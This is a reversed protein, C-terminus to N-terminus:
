VSMIRDFRRNVHLVIGLGSSALGHFWDPQFGNREIKSLRGPFFCFQNLLICRWEYCFIFKCWVTWDSAGSIYETNRIFDLLTTYGSAGHISAKGVNVGFIVWEHTFIGYMSQRPYNMGQGDLRNVCFCCCAVQSRMLRESVRQYNLMAISFPWKHHIKGNFISSFLSKGCSHSTVLPYLGQNSLTSQPPIVEIMFTRLVPWCGRYSGCMDCNQVM